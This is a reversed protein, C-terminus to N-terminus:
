GPGASFSGSAICNERGGPNPDWDQVNFTGNVATHTVRGSLDGIPPRLQPDLEAEFRTAFRGKKLRQKFHAVTSDKSKAIFLDSLGGPNCSVQTQLAYGILWRPKFKRNGHKDQFIVTFYIQAPFSGTVTLDQFQRQKQKGQAAPSLLAMALVSLAAAILARKMHRSRIGSAGIIRGARGQATVAPIPLFGWSQPM